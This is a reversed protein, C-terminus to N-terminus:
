TLHVSMEKHRVGWFTNCYFQIYSNPKRRGEVNESLDDQLGLLELFERSETRMELVDKICIVIHQSGFNGHSLLVYHTHRFSILLSCV